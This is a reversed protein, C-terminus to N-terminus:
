AVPAGPGAQGARLAMVEDAVEDEALETGGAERYGKGYAAMRELAELRLERELMRIMPETHFLGAAKARSAVHEPLELTVTAM